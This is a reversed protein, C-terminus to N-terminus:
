NKARVKEIEMKIYESKNPKSLLNKKILENFWLSFVKAGKYNLHAFDAYAEDQIPFNDFDLFEINKFKKNKIALLKEENLRSYYSHQPSRVFYVKTNKSECFNIIKELYKINYYSIETSEALSDVNTKRKSILEAIENRELRKYSGYKESISYDFSLITTFNHRTSTSIVKLFDKNNKSLLLQIDSTDMFPSHWPFHNNMEEFGWIWEDDMYKHIVNNSFEIFVADIKNESLIKKVKQYTYFYAEGSKSLNKFNPIISDNFACESHSHGLVLFKNEKNLIFDSKYKVIYHVIFVFMLLGIIFIFLTSIIKKLFTRM